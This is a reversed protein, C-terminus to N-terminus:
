QLLYEFSKIYRAVKFLNPFQNESGRWWTLVDIRTGATPRSMREYMTIELRLPPEGGRQEQPQSLEQAAVIDLLEKDEESAPPLATPSVHGKAAYFDITSQHDNVLKDVTAEYYNKTSDTKLLAGKWFPHLLHAVAYEHSTCMGDPFRTEMEKVLRGLANLLDANAM